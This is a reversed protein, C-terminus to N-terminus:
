RGNGRRAPDLRADRMGVADRVLGALTMLAARAVVDFLAPALLPGLLRATPGAGAPPTRRAPPPDGNRAARSDAGGFGLVFGVAAGTAITAWPRERLHGGIDAAREAKETLRALRQDLDARTEEIERRILESPEAM